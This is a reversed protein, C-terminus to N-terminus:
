KTIMIYGDSNYRVSMGACNYGDYILYNVGTEPDLYVYTNDTVYTPVTETQVNMKDDAQKGCATLSLLVVMAAMVIIIKKKMDKDEKEDRIYIIYIIHKKTIKCLKLIKQLILGLSSM